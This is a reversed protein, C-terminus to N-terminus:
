WIVFIPTMRKGDGLSTPKVMDNMSEAESSRGTDDVEDSEKRTSPTHPPIPLPLLVADFRKTDDYLQRLCISASETACEM